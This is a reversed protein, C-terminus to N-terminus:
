NLKDAMVEVFIEGLTVNISSDQIMCDISMTRQFGTLLMKVADLDFRVIEVNNLKLLDKRLSEHWQEVKQSGYAYIIVRQSRGSAKRIRKIDPLGLEIWVEMEDSLSKQWLDPEDDSSLGKTFSLHEDANLAFALVRMLMREQTESPHLAINLPYLQYHDRNFDNVQLAVKYM